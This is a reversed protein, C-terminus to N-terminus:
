FNIMQLLSRPTKYEKGQSANNIIYELVKILRNWKNIGTQSSISHAKQLNTKFRGMLSDISSALAKQREEETPEQAIEDKDIDYNLAVYAAIANIFDVKAKTNKILEEFFERRNSMLPIVRKLLENDEVDMLDLIQEIKEKSTITSSLIKNLQPNDLVKKRIKRLAFAVKTGRGHIPLYIYMGRAVKCKDCVSCDGVCETMNKSNVEEGNVVKIRNAMIEDIIPIYQELPLPMFANDIMFGSGQIVVNKGINKLQDKLDKRHSYTYFTLEPLLSALRKLKGIDDVEALEAKDQKGLKKMLSPNKSLNRFEGSENLRVYKINPDAKVLKRIGEAIAEPTLCAWQEAQRVNKEMAKNFRQEKSLAYCNKGVGCLGLIASMCKHATSMNLIITDSGIKVNPAVVEFSRRNGNSDVWIIENEEEEDIQFKGQDYFAIAEDMNDFVEEGKKLKIVKSDVLYPFIHNPIPMQIQNDENVKALDFWIPMKFVDNEYYFDNFGQKAM